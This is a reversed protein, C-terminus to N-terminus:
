HDARCPKQVDPTMQISLRTSYTCSGMIMVDNLSHLTRTRGWGQGAIGWCFSIESFPGALFFHFLEVRMFSCLQVRLGGTRGIGNLCDDMMDSTKVM